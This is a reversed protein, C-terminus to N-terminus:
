PRAGFLREFNQYFIMENEEQTLHLSRVNEIEDKASWLPFDTGFLFRDIGFKEFMSLVYEKSNFAFSSSTDFWLNETPSLVDNAEQWREYGGFHAAIVVMDPVAKMASVLRAPSSADYRRDGMHMLIPLGRRAIARYLPIVRPDDIDFRQFDPHLKVGCLGLSIARDLEEEYGIFEPHISALGAVEPHNQTVCGIFDTISTVQEPTVAASCVLFHTIGDKKRELLKQVSAPPPNLHSLSYFGRISQSVKESIKDPFVHAHADIIKM